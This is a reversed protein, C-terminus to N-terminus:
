SKITFYMRLFAYVPIVMENLMTRYEGRISGEQIKLGLNVQPNLLLKNITWSVWRMSGQLEEQNPLSLCYTAMLSSQSVVKGVGYIDQSRYVKLYPFEHLPLNFADYSRIGNVVTPPNQTHTLEYIRDDFFTTPEKLGQQVYILHREKQRQLSKIKDPVYAANLGDRLYEAIAQCTWDIDPAPETEIPYPINPLM